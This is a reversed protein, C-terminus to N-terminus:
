STLAHHDKFLAIKWLPGNTSWLHSQGAVNETRLLSQLNSYTWDM